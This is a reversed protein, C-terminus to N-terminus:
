LDNLLWQVREEVVRSELQVVGPTGKRMFPKRRLVSSALFKPVLVFLLNQHNERMSKHIPYMLVFTIEYEFEFAKM